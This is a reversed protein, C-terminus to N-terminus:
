VSKKGQKMAIVEGEYRIGKGKYPEPKKNDRLKAAFAGVADKDIGSVTIISKEITTKLGEPIEITVPHSFGLAFVLTNGKVEGKYGIGEIQLKKDFGKTVGTIMNSIHSAYTGWFSSMQGKDGKPVITVDKDSITIEYDAPFDRKLEGKAGKVTLTGNAFTATAGQLEISQKGIRSM